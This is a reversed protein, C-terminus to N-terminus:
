LKGEIPPVPLPMFHTPFWRVVPSHKEATHDYSTWNCGDWWGTNARPQQAEACILLIRSKDKPAESIPRWQPPAMQYASQLSSQILAVSKEDICGVVCCDDCRIKDALEMAEHKFNM